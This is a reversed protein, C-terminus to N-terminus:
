NTYIPQHRVMSASAQFKKSSRNNFLFLPNVCGTTKHTRLVGYILYMWKPLTSISWTARYTGYVGIQGRWFGEAKYDAPLLNATCGTIRCLRVPHLVNSTHHCLKCYCLLPLSINFRTIWQRVYKAVTKASCWVSSSHIMTYIRYFVHLGYCHRMFHIFLHATRLQPPIICYLVTVWSKRSLFFIVSRFWIHNLRNLSAM